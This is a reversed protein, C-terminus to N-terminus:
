VRGVPTFIRYCPRAVKVRVFCQGGLDLFLDFQLDHMGQEDVNDPVQLKGNVLLVSGNILQSLLEARDGFHNM